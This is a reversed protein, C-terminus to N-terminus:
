LLRAGDDRHADVALHLRAVEVVHLLLQALRLGVADVVRGRALLVVLGRTGRGVGLPPGNLRAAGKWMASGGRADGGRVLVEWARARPRELKSRSGRVGGTVD